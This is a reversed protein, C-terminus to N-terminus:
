EKVVSGGRAGEKNHPKAPLQQHHKRRQGMTDPWYVSMPGPGRDQVPEMNRRQAKEINANGSFWLQSIFTLSQSDVSHKCM